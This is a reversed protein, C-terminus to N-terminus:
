LGDSCPGLAWVKSFPLKFRVPREPNMGPKSSKRNASHGAALGPLRRTLFSQSSSCPHLHGPDPTGDWAGSFPSLGACSMLVHCSDVQRGEFQVIRRGSLLGVRCGSGQRSGILVQSGAGWSVSTEQSAGAGVCAIGPRPLHAALVGPNIGIGGLKSQAM